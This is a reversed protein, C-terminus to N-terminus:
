KSIHQLIELVKASTMHATEESICDTAYSIVYKCSGRFTLLQHLMPYLFKAVQSYQLLDTMQVHKGEGPIVRTLDGVNNFGYDRIVEPSGAYYDRPHMQPMVMQRVVEQQLIGGSKIQAGLRQHLGRAYDWFCDRTNKHTRTLHAMTRAHLGLSPVPTRKMYRRLDATVNVSIDHYEDGVGADRVMEVIATNISAQLTTGFSVGAQKSKETIRKHTEADICNVIQRSSPKDVSPRPFARFLVPEKNSNLVEAKLTEFREQDNRLQEQIARDQQAIDENSVFMGFPKDDIAQGDIVANLLNVFLQCLFAVSVGDGVAHHTVTMFNYQYPYAAKLEPMPCPADEAAPVLRARWTPRSSDVLLGDSWIDNLIDEYAMGRELVKFDISDNERKQWWLNGDREKACVQYIHVKRQMHLLAETVHEIRLPKASNLTTFPGTHRAGVRHAEIFTQQTSDVPWLWEQHEEHHDEHQLLYGVSNQSVTTTSSNRAPVQDLRLDKKSSSPRAGTSRRGKSKAGFTMTQCGRIQSVLGGFARRSLLPMQPM